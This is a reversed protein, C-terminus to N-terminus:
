RTVQKYFFVCSVSVGKRWCFYIYEYLKFLCDCSIKLRKQMPLISIRYIRSPIDLNLIKWLTEGPYYISYVNGVEPVRAMKSPTDLHNAFNKSNRPNQQRRKIKQTRPALELVILVPRLQFCSICINKFYRYLAKFPCHTM